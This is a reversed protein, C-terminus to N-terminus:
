MCRNAVLVCVLIKLSVMSQLWRQPKGCLNESVISHDLAYSYLSGSKVVGM